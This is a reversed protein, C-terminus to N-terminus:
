GVANRIIVELIRNIEKKAHEPLRPTEVSLFGRLLFSRAEEESFGKAMLYEIKDGSIMGIAAEHTLEVERRVSSIEPVSSVYSEDDLLLGLCEIHGKAGPSKSAIESRAIVRAGEGAMVRSVIEASAGGGELVAKSGVDYIDGGRGAVVTIMQASANAALYAKPYAQLSGVPSYIAYYSVYEGGEEVRVVTRPRVHTGRAWSHLMTFVLKAGRAVYFESVGIHLGGQVGHPIMCGTTVYAEAGEDIFVVNHSFQARRNTFIGLCTYIPFPFKVGPPVYVYYGLEGGFLYAAATYKDAVVPVLKWALKSVQPDEKLALALPKVVVGYKRFLANMASYYAREGVQIYSLRESVDFGLYGSLKKAVGAEVEEVEGAIRPEELEFSGLDVDPGYTAKKALAKQARERLRKTDM